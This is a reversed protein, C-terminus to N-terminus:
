ETPKSSMEIHSRNSGDRALHKHFDLGQNHFLHGRFPEQPIYTKPPYGLALCECFYKPSFFHMNKKVKKEIGLKGM